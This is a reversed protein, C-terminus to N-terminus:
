PSHETTVHVAPEPVPARTSRPPWGDSRAAAPSDAQDSVMGHSGAHAAKTQPAGLTSAEQMVNSRMSSQAAPKNPRDSNRAIAANAWFVAQDLNTLALSLERSDPCETAFLTALGKAMERIEIYSESQAATPAHYTFDNEIRAALDQRM